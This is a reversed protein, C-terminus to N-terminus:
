QATMEETAQSNKARTKTSKRKLNMKRAPIPRYGSVIASEDVSENDRLLYSFGDNRTIIGEITQFETGESNEKKVQVLTGIKYKARAM